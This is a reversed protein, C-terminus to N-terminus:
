REDPSQVVNLAFCGAMVGAESVSAVDLTRVIVPAVEARNAATVMATLCALEETFPYRDEVSQVVNLLLCAARPNVGAEKAADLKNVPVNFVKGPM